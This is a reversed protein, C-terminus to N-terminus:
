KANKFIKNYKKAIIPWDFNEKVRKKGYEGMKKMLIPNRLLHIISKALNKHFDTTPEILIGSKKDVADPIGGTNTGIVPKGCAGAEIFVMGFGEMDEKLPIVPLILIDSANYYNILTEKDVEGLLKVNNQLNKIKIEKKIRGLLDGKHILSKKPNGGIVIYIVEPFEKIILPLSRSIFEFIGKRKALRGVSLLIKKNHLNYKKKLESISTNIQFENFNVGPHNIKIKEQKINRKLLEKKSVESITVIHDIKSLFYPIIAQYIKNPHIIDLGYTNTITKKRFFKTLFVAIPSSLASGSFIIDIDNKALIRLSKFFSSFLFFLLSKKKPTILFITNDKKLEEYLNFMLNEAGGIRPPFNWTILLINM